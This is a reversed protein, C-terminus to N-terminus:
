ETINEVLEKGGEDWNAHVSKLASEIKENEINMTAEVIVQVDSVVNVSRYGNDKMQYQTPLEWTQYTFGFGSLDFEVPTLPLYQSKDPANTTKIWNNIEAINDRFMDITDESVVHIVVNEPISEEQVLDIKTNNAFPVERGNELIDTTWIDDYDRLFEYVDSEVSVTAHYDGVIDEYDSINDDSRDFIMVKDINYRDGRSDEIEKEEDLKKILDKVMIKVTNSYRGVHLTLQKNKLTSDGDTFQKRKKDSLNLDTEYDLENLQEWGFHEEYTDQSQSSIRVVYHDEESAWVFEADSQTIRHAMFVSMDENNMQKQVIKSLPINVRNEKRSVGKSGEEAVSVLDNALMHYVKIFRNNFSTSITGMINRLSNHQVRYNGDIEKVVEDFHERKEDSLSLYEEVTDVSKVIAAIDRYYMDYFEDALWSIFDTRDQVLDRTGTPYPTVIDETTLNDESIYDGDFKDPDEDGTVVFYGEHPGSVVIPTEHNLRIELSDLPFNRSVSWDSKIPVDMLICNDISSSRHLGSGQSNVANSNVATFAEHQYVYYNYDNHRPTSIELDDETEESLEQYKSLIDKPPYEEDVVGDETHNRFLVPVRTWEAYKDIWGMIEGKNISQGVFIEFEVGYEDDELGAFPSDIEDEPEAFGSNSWFGVFPGEDVGRPNSYMTFGGDTGGTLMWTALFGMGFQGTLSTSSRSTSKGIQTVVEDIEDRTIGVGNDRITLRLSDGVEYLEILIVGEDPNELYGEESARLVSTVSNTLPERIGAERGKYIDEALRKFVPETEIEFKSRNKINGAQIEKGGHHVGMENDFRVDKEANKDTM